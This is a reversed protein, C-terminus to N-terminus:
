REVVDYDFEVRCGPRDSKESKWGCKKEDSGYKSTNNSVTGFIQTDEAYDDQTTTISRIHNV